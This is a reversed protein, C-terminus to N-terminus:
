APVAAARRALRDGVLVLVVVTAAVCALALAAGLPEDVAFTPLMRSPVALAFVMAIASGLWSGVMNGRHGQVDGSRIRWVGLSVTVLTVLSLIHLWSFAGDRLHRIWFSSFATWLMLVVWVRGLLRHRADGKRRVLQVVGLSVSVLAAVVHSAILLTWAHM